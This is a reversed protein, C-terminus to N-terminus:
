PRVSARPAALVHRTYTEHVEAIPLGGAACLLARHQFLDPPIDLLRDSAEAGAEPLARGRRGSQLPDWRMEVALTRRIPRLDQVVRGFPTDTTDLRHNMDRTLRGPVYWNDAESLVHAGCVLEVRRHRVVEGASVQLRRRQESSPATEIGGIPRAVIRPDTALGQDACWRELTLTASPSALLAANLERVRRRAEVRALLTDPWPLPRPSPVGAAPALPRRLTM